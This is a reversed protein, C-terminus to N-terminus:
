GRFFLLGVVVLVPLLIPIAYKFIYALFGPAPVHRSEAIARILLNPSNM